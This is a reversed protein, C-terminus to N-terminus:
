AGYTLSNHRPPWHVAVLLDKLKETMSQRRDVLEVDHVVLGPLNTALGAGCGSPECGM